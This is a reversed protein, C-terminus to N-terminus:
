FTTNINSAPSSTQPKLQSAQLQLTYLQTQDDSPLSHLHPQWSSNSSSSSTLTPLSKLVQSQASHFLISRPPNTEVAEWRKLYFDTCNIKYFWIIVLSWLSVGCSALKETCTAQWVANHMCAHHLITTTMLTKRQFPSATAIILLKCVATNHKESWNDLSFIFMCKIHQLSFCM